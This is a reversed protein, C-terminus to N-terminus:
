KNARLRPMTELSREVMAQIRSEVGGFRNQILELAEDWYIEHRRRVAQIEFDTKGLRRLLELYSELTGGNMVHAKAVDWTARFIAYPVHTLVDPVSIDNLASAVTSFDTYLENSLVEFATLMVDAPAPM